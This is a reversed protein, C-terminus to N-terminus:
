RPANRAKGSVLDEITFMRGNAIVRRVKTTDAINQLPDGDVLVIDALKGPAIVGADLGLFDAPVVTAARLAEYPSMGFRVYAALENHLYLAEPEDTGAVIRGGARFVDMVEKGNAAASLPNQPASNLIQAKLWPADLELRPDRRLEPHEDLFVRTEPILTPTMTMRAGGIIRAVDDYTHDLTNKPSYGRRSTGGVHEVSDIGDFAAPYIEHSSAPVGVHHAFDVIHRQQLDPMRVYSKFMDFGLIRGRELEMDLQANSSIAVGM